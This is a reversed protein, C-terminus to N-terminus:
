LFCAMVNDPPQSILIKHHGFKHWVTKTILQHKEFSNMLEGGIAKGWKPGLLGDIADSSSRFVSVVNSM